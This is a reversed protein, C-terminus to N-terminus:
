RCQNHQPRAAISLNVSRIARILFYDACDTRM